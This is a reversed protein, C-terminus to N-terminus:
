SQIEPWDSQWTSSANHMPEGRLDTGVSSTFQPVPPLRCRNIIGYAVFHLANDTPLTLRGGGIGDRTHQMTALHLVLYLCLSLSLSLSLHGMALTASDITPLYMANEREWARMDGGYEDFMASIRVLLEASASL